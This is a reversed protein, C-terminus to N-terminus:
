CVYGAERAARDRFIKRFNTFNLPTATEAVPLQKGAGEIELVIAVDAVLRAFGAENLQGINM